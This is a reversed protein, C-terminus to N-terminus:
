NEYNKLVLLGPLINCRFELNENLTDVKITFAVQKDKGGNLVTCYLDLTKEITTRMYCTFDFKSEM